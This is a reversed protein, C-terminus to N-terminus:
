WLTTIIGPHKKLLSPNVQLGNLEDLAIICDNTAPKEPHLAKKITINLRQVEKLWRQYAKRKELVEERDLVAREESSLNEKEILFKKVEPPIFEGSEVMKKLKLAKKALAMEWEIKAKSSPFSDPRDQGLDIEILDDMNKLRVWMKRPESFSENPSAQSTPEERQSKTSKRKGSIEEGPLKEAASKVPNVEKSINGATRRVQKSVAKKASMPNKVIEKYKETAKTLKKPAKVLALPEKSQQTNSFLGNEDFDEEVPAIEPTNELEDIGEAYGKSKRKISGFQEKTEQTYLWMDKSKVAATQYTGYFFIEYRDKLGLGTIRAPWPSYGKVKAFVLDGLM